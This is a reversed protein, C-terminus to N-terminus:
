ARVGEEVELIDMLMSIYIEIDIVRQKVEELSECELIEDVKDSINLLEKICEDVKM